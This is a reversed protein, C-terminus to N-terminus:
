IVIATSDSTRRSCYKGWMDFYADEINKAFTKADARPSNKFDSRLQHRYNIIQEPNNALEIAKNIYEDKSFTVLEPHNMCSLIMMGNQTSFEKGALTIVPVGQWSAEMTTTGATYPFSDLAIDVDSYCTLMKHHESHGELRVRAMDIGEDKFMKKYVDLYATHSLVGAKMYFKSNPLKKLIECWVKVVTHNVKHAAGFSGFTVYGNKLFPPPSCEPFTSPFIAVGSVGKFHYLSESYFPQSKNLNFEDGLLNYDFSSIGTTACHNYFTVQVPAPKRAIVGYRNNFCHGNMELLIDIQDKNILFSLQEDNLEKTDNWVHPIDKIYNPVEKPDADSYCFIKIRNSDHEKLFPILLSQSVSNHFFHCIYGINLIRNPIPKNLHTTQQKISSLFYDEYKSAIDFMMQETCTPSLLLCQLYLSYTLQDLSLDLSLRYYTQANEPYGANLIFNAIERYIEAHSKRNLEGSSVIQKVNYIANTEVLNIDLAIQNYVLAYKSKVNMLKKLVIITKANIKSLVRKAKNLPKLTM